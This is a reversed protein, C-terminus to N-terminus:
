VPMADRDGAEVTGSDRTQPLSQPLVREGHGPWRALLYHSFRTPRGDALGTAPLPGPAPECYTGFMRDFVPFVTAFNVDCEGRDLRHHLFHLRNDCVFRRLPGLNVPVNMHLLSSQVLALAYLLYLQGGDIGVLFATPLVVLLLFGIQDVPHIVAHLIDLDRPSHHVAHFRWLIAFRHQARHLWYRFFDHIFLVLLYMPLTQLLLGAPGSSADARFLPQAPFLGLKAAAYGLLTAFGLFSAQVLWALAYNKPERRRPGAHREVLLLLGPVLLPQLFVIGATLVLGRAEAATFALDARALRTLADRAAAITPPDAVTAVLGAVLFISLMAAVIALPAIGGTRAPGTTGITM